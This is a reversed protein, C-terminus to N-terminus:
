KKSNQLKILQGTLNKAEPNTYLVTDSGEFVANCKEAKGLEKISLRLKELIAQTLELEEKAIEQRFQGLMDNLELFEKRYAEEKTRLADKSLVAANAELDEKLKKLNEQKKNLEKQKDEFKKKLASKARKGEEVNNLAEQFDVVCLSFAEALLSKPVALLILILVIFTKLSQKWVNM